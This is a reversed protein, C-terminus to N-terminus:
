NKIKKAIFCVGWADDSIAKKTLWEEAHVIEFGHSQAFMELEPKFLYRMKHTENLIKQSSDKKDTIIIEYNVDVINKNCDIKPVAKREIKLNENELKKFRSEPRQKLVAPGYWVDFIFIGNKNLHCSATNFFNQLDENSNQYSAVHFLSIVVDFKKDIRYNRVDGKAFFVKDNKIKHAENLMEDSLDIGHIKLGKKALLDAHKGTGCGLELVDEAKASFEKILSFIYDAEKQYDKDHYLLDYYQSYQKFTSM